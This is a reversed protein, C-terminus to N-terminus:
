PHEAFCFHVYKQLSAVSELASRFRQGVEDSLEEPNLFIGKAGNEGLQGAIRHRSIEHYARMLREALDVTLEGRNLLTRIREITNTVTVGHRVALVCINMVLPDLALQEIDIEGRHIGRREVKLGGFLGLALPMVAVQRAVHNFLTTERLRDLTSQFCADVEATLGPDGVLPRVDAIKALTRYALEDERHLQKLPSSLGPLAPLSLHHEHRRDLLERSCWRRLEDISGRWFSHMIFSRETGVILGMKRLLVTVRYSLTEFYSDDSKGDGAYVLFHQQGDGLTRELRGASEAVLWCYPQPAPGLDEMLLGAVALEIAKRLMLDYYTTAIEHLAFVSARRGFYDRALDNLRSGLPGLQDEFEAQALEKLAVAFLGSFREEYDIEDTLRNHLGLLLECEEGGTQFSARRAFSERIADFLDESGRRSLM